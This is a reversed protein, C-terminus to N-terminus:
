TFGCHPARYPFPFNGPITRVHDHIVIGDLTAIRLCAAADQSTKTESPLGLKAQWGTSKDFRNTPQLVNVGLFGYFKVGLIRSFVRFSILAKGDPISNDFSWDSQDM